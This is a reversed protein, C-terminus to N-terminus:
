PVICAVQIKATRSARVVVGASGCEDGPSVVGGSVHHIDPTWGSLVYRGPRISLVFRGNSGVTVSRRWLGQSVTIVGSIPRHPNADAPSYAGGLMEYVGRVIGVQAAPIDRIHRPPAAQAAAATIGFALGAVAILV